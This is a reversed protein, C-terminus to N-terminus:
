TKVSGRPASWTTADDDYVLVSARARRWVRVCVRVTSCVHVHRGLWVPVAPHPVLTWHSAGDQIRTLTDYPMYRVM